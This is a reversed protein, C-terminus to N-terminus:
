VFTDRFKIHFFVYTYLYFSMFSIVLIYIKIEINNVDYFFFVSLRIANKAHFFQM